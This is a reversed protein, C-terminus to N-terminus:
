NESLGVACFVFSCFDKHRGKGATMFNVFIKATRAVRRM